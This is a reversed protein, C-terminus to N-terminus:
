YTAAVSTQDAVILTLPDRVHRMRLSKAANPFLRHVEDRLAQELPHFRSSGSFYTNGWVEMEARSILPLPPVVFCNLSMLPVRAVQEEVMRYLAGCRDKKFFGFIGSNNVVLNLIPLVPHMPPCADLQRDWMELWAAVADNTRAEADSVDLYTTIISPDTGPRSQLTDLCDSFTRVLHDKTADKSLSAHVDHRRLSWQPATSDSTLNSSELVSLRRHFAEVEDEECAVLILAEIKFREHGADFAQTMLQMRNVAHARADARDIALVYTSPPVSSTNPTASRRDAMAHISDLLSKFGPDSPMDTSALSLNATQAKFLGSNLAARLADQDAKTDGIIVQILSRETGAMTFEQLLVPESLAKQRTAADLNLKNVSTETCLFLVVTSNKISSALQSEWTPGALLGRVRTDTIEPVLEQPRDIYITWDPLSHLLAAVLPTILPKDQGDHSIFLQKM